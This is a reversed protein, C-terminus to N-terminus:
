WDGEGQWHLAGASNAQVGHAASGSINGCDQNQNLMKLIQSYQDKTFTCGQLHKESEDMTSTNSQSRQGKDNTVSGYNFLLDNSMGDYAHKRTTNFESGTMYANHGVGNTMKRKSKFDSPYGILKYCQDKAHGKCKCFECIVGLNKKFRNYGQSNSQGGTRSYMALPDVGISCISNLGINVGSSTLKQCEDNVVMAYAQNVGPVPNMLLIQSRAQGFSENLGMLFQYLKQRNLHEIFGRSKECDCGPSPMLTEYEDWLGKLKTFYVSVSNTGQQLTAIEKHLSFTRSGDLRDFREKLDSWVGQASTAFAVGALLNKSVSNLLWSLVIANVREWQGGLETSVDNKRCTGDVLGIKNRGLLALRISRSWVAYNEIGLFQFSILNVGSVDAPSLYLPHNYDLVQNAAMMLTTNGRDSVRGNSIENDQGGNNTM